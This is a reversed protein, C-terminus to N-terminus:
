KYNFKLIIPNDTTLSNETIHGGKIKKIFAEPDKIQSPEIIAVFKGNADITKILPPEDTYSIDNVIGRVNYINTKSTRKNHIVLYADKDILDVMSIFSENENYYKIFHFKSSTNENIEKLYKDTFMKNDFVFKLHIRVEKDIIRYINYDLNSIYLLEKDNFHQFPNNLILKKKDNYKFYSSELKSGDKKLILLDNGSSKNFLAINNNFIEFKYASFSMSITKVYTGDPEYFLLHNQDLIVINKTAPDISIDDPLYYEGPGNGIKSIGNLYRGKTSFRFVSKANRSDLIYINDDTNIIKDIQGIICNQNTELPILEIDDFLESLKVSQIIDDNKIHIIKIDTDKELEKKCGCLCLVILFLIFYKKKM